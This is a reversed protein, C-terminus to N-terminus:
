GLDTGFKGKSSLIYIDVALKKAAQWVELDKFGGVKDSMINGRHGM